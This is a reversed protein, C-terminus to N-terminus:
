GRHPEDDETAAEVAAKFEAVTATFEALTAELSSTDVKLVFPSASKQKPELAAMAAYVEEAVRHPDFLLGPKCTGLNDLIVNAGAEIATPSPM